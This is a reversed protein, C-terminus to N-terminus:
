WVTSLARRDCGAATRPPVFRVSRRCLVAMSVLCLAAPPDALGNGRGGGAACPVVLSGRGAGAAGAVFGCLAGGPQAALPAGATCGSRRRAAGGARRCEPRGGGSGGGGRGADRRPVRVLGGAAACPQGSVAPLARAARAGAQWRYVAPVLRPGASSDRSVPSGPLEGGAASGVQRGGARPVGQLGGRRPKVHGGRPLGDPREGPGGLVLPGAPERGGCIGEPM